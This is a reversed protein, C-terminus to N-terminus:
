SKSVDTFAMNAFRSMSIGLPCNIQWQLFLQFNAFDEMRQALLKEVLPAQIKGISVCSYILYSGNCIIVYALLWEALLSRTVYITGTPIEKVINGDVTLARGYIHGALTILEELQKIFFSLIFIWLHFAIVIYFMWRDLSVYDAEFDNSGIIVQSVDDMNDPECEQSYLLIAATSNLIEDLQGGIM